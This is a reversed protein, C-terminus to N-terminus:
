FEFLKAKLIDSSCRDDNFRVSDAQKLFFYSLLCVILSTSFLIQNADLIALVKYKRQFFKTQIEAWHNKLEM